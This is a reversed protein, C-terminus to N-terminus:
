NARPAPSAPPAANLRRLVPRDGGVTIMSYCGPDATIARRYEALPLGLTAAVRLRLPHNHSVVLACRSRGGAAWATLADLAPFARSAVDAGSEGEPCRTGYPDAEWAARLEPDRARCEEATLGEWTGYDIELLSRDVEPAPPGPLLTLALELTQRCRLASSSVARMEDVPLAALEAALARGLDRALLEGEPALPADSRGGLNRGSVSSATTAHRILFLSGMVPSDLATGHAISRAARGVMGKV